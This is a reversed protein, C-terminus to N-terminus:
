VDLGALSFCLKVTSCSILFSTMKNSILKYNYKHSPVPYISAIFRLQSIYVYVGLTDLRNPLKLEKKKKKFDIKPQAINESM